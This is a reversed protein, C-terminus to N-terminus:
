GLFISCVFGTMCAPFVSCKGHALSGGCPVLVLRCVAQALAPSPFVIRVGGVLGQRVLWSRGFGSTEAPDNVETLNTKCGEMWELDSFGRTLFGDSDQLISIGSVCILHWM